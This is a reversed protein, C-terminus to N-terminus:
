SSRFLAPYKGKSEVIQGDVLRGDPSGVVGIEKDFLPETLPEMVGREILAEKIYKEVAKGMEWLLKTGPPITRYLKKGEKKLLYVQRVCLDYLDAEHIFETEESMFRTEDSSHHYLVLALSPISRNTKM